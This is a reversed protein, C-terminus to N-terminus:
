QHGDVRSSRPDVSCSPLSSPTATTARNPWMTKVLGGDIVLRESGGPELLDVAVATVGDIREPKRRFARRRRRARRETALTRAVALGIGKSGGTVVAVKGCLQLDM